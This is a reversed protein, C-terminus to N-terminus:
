SIEMRDSEVSRSRRSPSRSRGRTSRRRSSRRPLPSSDADQLEANNAGAPTAEPAVRGARRSSRRPIPPRDTGQPEADHARAVHDTYRAVLRNRSARIRRLWRATKHVLHADAPRTRRAVQVGAMCIDFPAPDALINPLNQALAKLECDPGEMLNAFFSFSGLGLIKHLPSRNRLFERPSRVAPDEIHQVIAECLDWFIPEFSITYTLQEDPAGQNVLHRQWVELDPQWNSLEQLWQRRRAERDQGHATAPAVDLVPQRCM